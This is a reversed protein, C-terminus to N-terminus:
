GPDPGEVNFVPDGRGARFVVAVGPQGTPNGERHVVHPPVYIFDGPAAELVDRGGPGSEMRMGGAVVHITSEYEGHHHWGSVGGPETEVLGAWMGPTAVAQRRVMGPTGGGPTLDERAVRQVRQWDDQTM